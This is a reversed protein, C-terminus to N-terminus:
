SGPVWEVQYDPHGAFPQALLRLRREVREDRGCECPGGSRDDDCCTDGEREKTAAPCTYWDDACVHHHETLLDDVLALKADIDALVHAPDNAAIHATTARLQRGSLAFGDAVTIGDIAVVEDSEANVSWPGPSGAEALARIEGYRARLFDALGTV